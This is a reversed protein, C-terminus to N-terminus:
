FFKWKAVAEDLLATGPGREVLQYLYGGRAFWVNSQGTDTDEFTLGAAGTVTIPQTNLDSIWPYEHEASEKTLVSGNDNWQTITIQVESASAGDLYLTDIAGNDASIYETTVRPPLQVSFRHAPDVYTTGAAKAAIYSGGAAVIVAIGVVLGAPLYYRKVGFDYCATLSPLQHSLHRV